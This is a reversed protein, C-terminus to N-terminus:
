GGEKRVKMRLTAMYTWKMDRTEIGAQMAKRQDEPIANWDFQAQAKFYQDEDRTM